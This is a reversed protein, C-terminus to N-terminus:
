LMLYDYLIRYNKLNLIYKLFIWITEENELSKM